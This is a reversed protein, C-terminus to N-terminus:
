HITLFAQVTATSSGIVPNRRLFEFAICDDGLEALYSYSDTRWDPNDYPSATRSARYTNIV